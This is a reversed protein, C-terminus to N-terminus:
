RLSPMFNLPTIHSHHVYTHISPHFSIYVVYTHMYRPAYTCAYNTHTNTRSVLIHMFAPTMYTLVLIIIQIADFGYFFPLYCFPLAWQLLVLPELWIFLHIFLDVSHINVHFSIKRFLICNLFSIMVRRAKSGTELGEQM